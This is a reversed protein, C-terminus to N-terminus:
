AVTGLQYNLKSVDRLNIIAFNEIRLSSDLRITIEILLRLRIIECRFSQLLLNIHTEVICVYGGHLCIWWAFM